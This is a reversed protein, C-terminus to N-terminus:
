TATSRSGCTCPGPGPAPSRRGGSADRIALDLLVNVIEGKNYYSISREAQNYFSYKDLWTDLSSEEVSQTLRAPRNELTAISDGLRSLYEEEDILGARLLLYESVANTGGESFTLM